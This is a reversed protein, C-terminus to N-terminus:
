TANVILNLCVQKTKNRKTKTKTEKEKKLFFDHFIASTDDGLLTM